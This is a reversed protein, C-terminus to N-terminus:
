QQGARKAEELSIMKRTTKSEEINKVIQKADLHANAPVTITEIINHQRDVICRINTGGLDVAIVYNIQNEPDSKEM